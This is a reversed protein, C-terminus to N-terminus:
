FGKVRQWLNLPVKCASHGEFCKQLPQVEVPGPLANERIGNEPMLYQLCHAAHRSTVSGCLCGQLHM